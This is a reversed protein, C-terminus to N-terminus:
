LGRSVLLFGLRCTKVVLMGSHFDQGGTMWDGSISSSARQFTWGSRKGVTIRCCVLFGLKLLPVPDICERIATEVDEWLDDNKNVRNSFELTKFVIDNM